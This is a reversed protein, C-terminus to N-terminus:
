VAAPTVQQKQVDDGSLHQVASLATQQQDSPLLHTVEAGGLNIRGTRNTALSSINCVLCVITIRVNM